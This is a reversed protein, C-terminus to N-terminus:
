GTLERSALLRVTLGTSCSMLVTPLLTKTIYKRESTPIRQAIDIRLVYSYLLLFDAQYAIYFLPLCLYLDSPNLVFCLTLCFMPSFSDMGLCLSVFCEYFEVSERLGELTRPV